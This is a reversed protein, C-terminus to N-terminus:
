ISHLCASHASLGAVFNPKVFACPTAGWTVDLNAKFFVALISFVNQYFGTGAALFVPLTIRVKASLPSIVPRASIWLFPGGMVSYPSRNSMAKQKPGTDAGIAQFLRVVNMSM